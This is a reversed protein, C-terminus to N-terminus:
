RRHLNRSSGAQSLSGLDAYWEDVAAPTLPGALETAPKWQASATTASSLPELEAPTSDLMPQPEALTSSSLTKNLSTSTISPSAPATAVTASSATLSPTAQIRVNDVNADETSDSATSRFRIKVNSTAYPTLDVTESHWVNEASVNGSLRRVDQIWTAGGNTSIDLSLFEGSDFSSEILWDFTLTPSTYGTLNLSNALSLTANTAAGDVEASYKGQTARQTSRAWDNQADEVWIGNWESTEFSDYLLTVPEPVVNLRAVYVDAKGERNALVQGSPSVAADALANALTINGRADLAIEGRALAPSAHPILYSDLFQLGTLRVVFDSAAGLPARLLTGATPDLDLTGATGGFVILRGAADYAVDSLWLSSASSLQGTQLLTGSTNWETLLVNNTNEGTIVPGGTGFQVTGSLQSAWMLKGTNSISLKAATGGVAALIAQRVWQVAGTPNLKVLYDDTSGVSTLASSGITTSSVFYGSVYANSSADLVLNKLFDNNAGGFTAVSSFAGVSTYRAVYGDLGGASTRTTTGKAPNFDVSGTFEGAVVITGSGDIALEQIYDAGTGGWSQAWLFNGSSSLKALFADTSGKNSLTTSGLTLRNAYTYGGVVVNGSSDIALSTPYTGVDGSFVQVWALQGATTYRAVYGALTEESSRTNVGATLDFDVTGQFSGTVYLNGNADIRMDTASLSSFPGHTSFQQAWGPLEDDANVVQVSPISLSTYSSDLSELTM